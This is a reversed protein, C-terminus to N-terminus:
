GTVAPRPFAKGAKRRFCWPCALLRTPAGRWLWVPGCGACHSAQTYAEPVSGADMVEGCARARLYIRLTDDPLGACTAIDACDLGNVLDAQLGEDAALKLLHARMPDPALLALLAPKEAALRALLAASIAGPRAEVRLRGGRASLVIGAGQLEALLAAATM